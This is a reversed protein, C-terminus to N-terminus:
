EHKVQEKLQKKCVDYARKADQHCELFDDIDEHPLIHCFSYRTSFLIDCTRSSEDQKVDTNKKTNEM